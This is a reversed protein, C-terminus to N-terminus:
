RSFRFRRVSVAGLATLGSLLLSLSGAEPVTSIHSLSSVTINGNRAEVDSLDILAYQLSASNTYLYFDYVANGMKVIYALPDTIGYAAFNFAVLKTSTDGDDVSTWDAATTDVKTLNVDDVSVGLAAALIAEECQPLTGCGSKNYGTGTDIYGYIGIPAAYAKSALVMSVLLSITVVVSSM